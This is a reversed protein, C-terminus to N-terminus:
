RRASWRYRRRRAPLSRRTAPSTASSRAASCRALRPLAEKFRAVAEDLPVGMVEFDLPLAGSAVGVGVRGPHLAHLWAIEEAVAAVPRLPLLLPCPAAWGTPMREVLWNTVQLPNPLYGAFGGHHESTMVGDFGSTAALVAQACLRAAVETAPLENHPYLRMSVSGDAFPLGTM